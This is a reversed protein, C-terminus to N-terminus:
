FLIGSRVKFNFGRGGGSANLLTVNEMQAMVNLGLLSIEAGVNQSFGPTLDMGWWLHLVPLPLNYSVTTRMPEAGGLQVQAAAFGPGLRRGAGLAARLPLRRVVTNIREDIDPEDAEEPVWTSETKLDVTATSLLGTWSEHGINELAFHAHWGGPLEALVGLDAAFAHGEESEIVELVGSLELMNEGEVSLAATTDHLSAEAMGFGHAYRGRLGLRLHPIGLRDALKPLNVRATLAGGALLRGGLSYDLSYARDFDNGFFLLDLMDSSMRAGIDAHALVAASVSAVHLDFRGRAGADMAFAGRTRQIIKRREEKTIYRGLYDFLEGTSLANNGMGGDLTLAFGGLRTEQLAPNESMWGFAREASRRWPEAAAPACFVAVALLCACAQALRRPLPRM